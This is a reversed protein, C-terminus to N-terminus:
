GVARFTYPRLLDRIDPDLSRIATGGMDGFGVLGDPSNRRSYWRGALLLAALRVPEDFDPDNAVAKPAITSIHANVADVVQSMAEEDVADGLDRGVWTLAEATTIIEAM